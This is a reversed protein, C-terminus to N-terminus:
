QRLLAQLWITQFIKKKIIECVSKNNDYCVLKKVSKNKNIRRLVSSGILGCGIISVQDFM